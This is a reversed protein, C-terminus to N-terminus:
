LNISPGLLVIGMLCQNGYIAQVILIKRRDATRLPLQPPPVNEYVCGNNRLFWILYWVCDYLYLWIKIGEDKRPNKQFFYYNGTWQLDSLWWVRLYVTAQLVTGSSGVVKSSKERGRSLLLSSVKENSNFISWQKLCFHASSGQSIVNTKLFSM